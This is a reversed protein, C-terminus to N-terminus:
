LIYEEVELGIDRLWDALVHRHCFGEKEYCLLIPNEIELLKQKLEEKNLRELREPIYREVYGDNDIEGSKWKSFIDWSPALFKWWAYKEIDYFDPVAGSIAIPTLGQNIYDNLKAYYGTYIM